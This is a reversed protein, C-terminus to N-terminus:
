SRSGCGPCEPHITRICPIPIRSVRWRTDRPARCGKQASAVGPRSRSNQTLISVILESGKSRCLTTDGAGICALAGSCDADSACCEGTNQIDDGPVFEEVPPKDATGTDGPLVDGGMADSIGPMDAAWGDAQVVDGGAADSRADVSSSTDNNSDPGTVKKGTGSCGVTLMIAVAIAVTRRMRTGPQRLQREANVTM